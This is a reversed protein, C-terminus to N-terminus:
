FISSVVVLTSMLAIFSFISVGVVMNVFLLADFQDFFKQERAYIKLYKSNGLVGLYESFRLSFSFKAFALIVLSLVILITFWENSIVERLM